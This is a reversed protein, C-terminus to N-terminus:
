FFCSKLNMQTLKMPKQLLELAHDPGVAEMEIIAYQLLILSDEPSLDVARRLYKLAKEIQDRNLAQVAKKYYFEGNPIFSVVNKQTNKKSKM